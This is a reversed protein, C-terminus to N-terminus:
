AWSNPPLADTPLDALQDSQDGADDTWFLAFAWLADASVPKTQTMYVSVRYLGTESPTFLTTKSIILTQDVLKGSAVILPSTLNITPPQTTTQASLSLGVLLLTALSFARYM